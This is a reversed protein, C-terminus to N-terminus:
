GLGRGVHRDSCGALQRLHVGGAPPRSCPISPAALLALTLLCDHCAPPTAIRLGARGATQGGEGLLRGVSGAVQGGKFPAFRLAASLGTAECAVGAAGALDLPCARELPAALVLSPLTCEYVEAHRPLGVM